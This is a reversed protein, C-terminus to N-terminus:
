DYGLRKPILKARFRCFREEVRSPLVRHVRKIRPCRQTRQNRTLLAVEMRRNGTRPAGFSRPLDLRSTAASYYSDDPFQSMGPPLIVIM